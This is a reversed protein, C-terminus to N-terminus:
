IIKSLFSDAVKESEPQFRNEKIQDLALGIQKTENENPADGQIEVSGLGEVFIQGM